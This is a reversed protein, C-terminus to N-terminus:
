VSFDDNSMENIRKRLFAKLSQYTERDNYEYMLEVRDFESKLSEPVCKCLLYQGFTVVRHEDPPLSAYADWYQPLNSYFQKLDELKKNM